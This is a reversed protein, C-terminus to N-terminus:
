GHEEEDELLQIVKDVRELSKEEGLLRISGFLPPSVRSGTIAVRLPMLLSGLKVELEEARARFTEENEEDSRQAAGQLLIRAERLMRLTAQADMKKPIAENVDYELEDKLLFRMLDPAESLLKLREKILPMAGDLISQEEPTPPTSVLDAEQLFPLILDRLEADSKERIYVGNFWELKKYDFAGPSKNLREIRFLRELEERTFLETSEDYSWGLRALYNILAEPLYGQRRFEIVSTAGHRKSLKQGDKGLVMPLHCYTPPEWGFAQYLLVHLPASSVWEQARLIHTIQMEHDDVVNALHYTPYGDSKLLVPDPIIDKHKRKVRGLLLDEFATEGELPGKFRIVPVVGQAKYQEIQEESLYRGRRDYGEKGHSQEEPPDYAYYAYGREVLEEAKRRYTEVRGSQFYPAYPGGVDPGEDWRFGLWSFTDYIDQLAEDSYRERDTDEIRLVFTGGHSRAFLYNFLATRVGGIHQLGTPSPAYRVRVEM